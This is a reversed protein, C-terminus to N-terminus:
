VTKEELMKKMKSLCNKCTVPKDTLKWPQGFYDGTWSMFHCFPDVYGNKWNGAEVYHVTGTSSIARKYGREKDYRRQQNVGESNVLYNFFMIADRKHLFEAIPIHKKFIMWEGDSIPYNPRNNNEGEWPATLYVNGEQKIIKPHDWGLNKCGKKRANVSFDKETLSNLNGM